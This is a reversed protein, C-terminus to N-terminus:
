GCTRLLLFVDLISPPVQLFAAVPATTGLMPAPHITTRANTETSCWLLFTSSWPQDKWLQPSTQQENELVQTFAPCSFAAAWYIRSSSTHRQVKPLRKPIEFCLLSMVGPAPPRQSFECCMCLHSTTVPATLFVPCTWSKTQDFKALTNLNETSKEKFPIAKLLKTSFEKLDSVM